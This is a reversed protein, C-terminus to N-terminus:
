GWFVDIMKTNFDMTVESHPDVMKHVGWTKLNEQYRCIMWEFEMIKWQLGDMKSSGGDISVELYPPKCGSLHSCVNRM